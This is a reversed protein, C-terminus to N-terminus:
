NLSINKGAEPTEKNESVFSEVVAKRALEAKMEKISKESVTEPVEQIVDEASPDTTNEICEAEKEADKCEDITPADTHSEEEIDIADAPMTTDEPEYMDSTDIHIIKDMKERGKSITIMAEIRKKEKYTLFIVDFMFVVKIGLLTLAVLVTLAGIIALTLLLAFM